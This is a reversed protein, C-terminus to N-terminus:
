TQFHMSCKKYVKQRVEEYTNNFISIKFLIRDETNKFVGHPKKVNLVCNHYLYNKGGIFVPAPNESVLVNVSCKPLTDVHLDFECDKKLTYYKAEGDIEFFDMLEKAYDFEFGEQLQLKPVSIPLGNDNFNKSEILNKQYQELLKQKDFKFDFGFIYENDLTTPAPITPASLAPNEIKITNNKEVYSDINSLRFCIRHLIRNSLIEPDNQGRRHLTTLQDILLIDGKKWWHTYLFKEQFLYNEFKTRISYDIGNKTRMLCKNNPFFYFGKYGGANTQEIWMKYNRRKGAPSNLMFNKQWEPIGKAWKDPDFTYECYSDEILNALETPIQKYALNTNLIETSTNKCGSYGQLATGDGIDYRNMDSHWDLIGSAFIGTFKDKIKKGTVRQVPYMDGLEFSPLTEPPGIMDGFQTWMLEDFEYIPGIDNVFRTYEAPNTTQERIVVVGYRFLLNQIQKKDNITLNQIKVDKIEVACGNKIEVINM